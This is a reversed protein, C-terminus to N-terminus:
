ALELLPSSILLSSLSLVGVQGESSGPTGARHDWQPYKSIEEKSPGRRRSLVAVEVEQAFNEQLAVAATSETESSRCSFVRLFGDHGATVIIDPSESEGTSRSRVSCVDWVCCPHPLSQYLESGRWVVVSGDEACTVSGVEGGPLALACGSLV